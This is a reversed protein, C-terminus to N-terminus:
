ELPNVRDAMACAWVQAEIINGARPKLLDEDRAVLSFRGQNGFPAAVWLWWFHVKSANNKRREAQLVQGTVVYQSPSPKKPDHIFGVMQPHADVGQEEHFSAVGSWLRATEVFGTVILETKSGVSLNQRKLGSNFLHFV